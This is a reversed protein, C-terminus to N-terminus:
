CGWSSSRWGNNDMANVLPRCVSYLHQLSRAHADTALQGAEEVLAAAQEMKKKIAKQAIEFEADLQQKDSELVLISPDVEEDGLGFSNNDDWRIVVFGRQSSKEDLVSGKLTYDDYEDVCYRIIENDGWEYDSRSAIVRDGPKLESKKM